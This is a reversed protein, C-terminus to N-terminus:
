YQDLVNKNFVRDSATKNTSIEGGGTSTAKQSIGLGIRGKQINELEKVRMKYDNTISDPMDSRMRRKYLNYIALDINIDKLRDPVTELPLNYLARLYGDIEAAGKDIQQQIRSICVDEPDDLEVADGRNEDDTLEILTAEDLNDRIDDVTCYAM